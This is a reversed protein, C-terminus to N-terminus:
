DLWVIGGAERDIYGDVKRALFDLKMAHTTLLNHTNLKEIEGRIESKGSSFGLNRVLGAIYEIQEDTSQPGDVPAIMRFHSKSQQTM